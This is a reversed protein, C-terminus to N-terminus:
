RDIVSHGPDANRQEIGATSGASVMGGRPRMTTGIGLATDRREARVSVKQLNLSVM